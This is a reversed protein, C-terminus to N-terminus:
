QCIMMTKATAAAANIRTTMGVTSTTPTTTFLASNEGTTASIISATCIPASSYAGGAFNVTCIGPTSGVSVSSISATTDTYITNTITTASAPPTFNATWIATSSQRYEDILMSAGLGEAGAPRYGVYMNSGGANYNTADSVSGKSVGNLYLRLTGSNRVYAIHCWASTPCDSASWALSLIVSNNNLWEINGATTSRVGFGTSQGLHGYTNSFTTSSNVWLWYDVTFDGSGLQTHADNTTFTGNGSNSDLSRTGFKFRSSTTVAGSSLSWASQGGTGYDYVTSANDFNLLVKTTASATGQGCDFMAAKTTGSGSGCTGWVVAGGSVILCQGNLGVPLRTPAGSVGGYILDAATTMPNTIKAAITTNLLQSNANDWLKSTNILQSNTGGAAVIEASSKVDADQIRGAAFVNISVFLLILFKLM